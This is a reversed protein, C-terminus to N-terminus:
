RKGMKPYFTSRVGESLGGWIPLIVHDFSLRRAALRLLETIPHDAAALSREDAVDVALRDGHVALRLDDASRERLAVVVGQGRALREAERLLAEVPGELLHDPGLRLAGVLGVEDADDRGVAGVERGGLQGELVAEGDDALLRQGRARGVGRLEGAEDALRTQEEADGVGVRAVGDDLVEAVQDGRALDALDAEDVALIGLLPEHGLELVVPWFCAAQRVSGLSAPAELQTPSMPLWM